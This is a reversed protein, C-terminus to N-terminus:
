KIMYSGQWEINRKKIKLQHKRQNSVDENAIALTWNKDKQSTINIVTYERSDHIVTVSKISPFPNIPIESVPDYIGHSEVVSAFVTNRGKRRQIFVPDNRLDFNPDDAGARGLILQDGAYTATTLTFLKGEKQGSGSGQYGFWTLQNTEGKTKGKAEEWIHQYGHDKGLTNLSNTRTELDFSNAILHGQFWTPLDYQHTDKATVKFVDILIPNKFNEDKLLVLTRHM